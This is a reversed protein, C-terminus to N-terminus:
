GVGVSASDANVEGTGDSPPGLGGTRGDGTEFGVIKLGTPLTEISDIVVSGM